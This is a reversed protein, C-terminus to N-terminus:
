ALSFSLIRSPPARLGAIVIIFSSFSCESPPHQRFYDLFTKIIIDSGAIFPNGTHIDQNIQKHLCCYCSTEEQHHTLIFLSANGFSCCASEPENNDKHKEDHPHECCEHHQHKDICFIEGHSHHPILDHLIIILGAVLLIAISFYNKV